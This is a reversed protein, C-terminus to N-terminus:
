GGSKMFAALSECQDTAIFDVGAEICAKWRIHAAEPSGFNYGPSWGNASLLASEGDLSYFRIWYGQGHATAVL